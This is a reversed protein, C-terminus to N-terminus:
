PDFISIFIKLINGTALPFNPIDSYEFEKKNEVSAVLGGLGSGCIIGVLPASQNNTKSKLYNVTESVEDYKHSFSTSVNDDLAVLLINQTFTGVCLLFIITQFQDFILHLNYWIM